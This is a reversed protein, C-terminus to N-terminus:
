EPESTTTQHLACFAEVINPDFQRGSCRRLEDLAKERSLAARYPRDSTMADYADAVALIRAGIPIAEGSLGEPYGGGDFHEHHYLVYHACKKYLQLGSLIDYGARAHSMMVRYEDETLQGSKLLIRDPISVKGIDHVRGAMAIQEVDSSKLGIASAIDQALKAVRQSHSATYPDRRDVIDALVQVTEVTQTHLQTYNKFSNHAMLLPIALFILTLPEEQYLYVILLAIPLVTPLHIPEISLDKRLVGFFRLRDSLSVMILVMLTNLITYTLYSFIIALLDERLNFLVGTSMKLAHFVSGAAYISITVQAANFLGKKLGRRGLLDALLSGISATFVATHIDFLVYAAVMFTCSVTISSAFFSVRLKLDTLCILSIWVAYVGILSLTLQGLSLAFLFSGCCIIFLYYWLAPGIM